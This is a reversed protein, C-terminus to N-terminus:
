LDAMLKKRLRDIEEVMKEAIKLSDEADSIEQTDFDGYDVDTRRSLLIKFNKVIEVPLIGPKIFRLSLMTVAGDHTEPNVGELILLSRVANLAAYYSRNLSTRIRTEKLNARADELFELAKRMRIDSLAKKDKVDLTM